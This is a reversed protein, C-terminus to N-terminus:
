FVVKHRNLSITDAKSTYIYYDELRNLAKPGCSKVIGFKFNNLKNPFHEPHKNFIHHSLASSDFKFNEIKFCGRHGNFRIHAPNVTQGFYFEIPISCHICIALYICNDTKCDLSFDLKVIFDNINVCKDLTLINCTLCGRARCKQDSGLVSTIASFASKAFLLSATNPNRRESIVIRKNGILLQLLDQKSSLFNKLLKAMHPDHNIVFTLIDSDQSQEMSNRHEALITDRDLALARTKCEQLETESYGSHLFKNEMYEICRRKEADSSCIVVARRFQSFPIGKFVHASHDSRRNLYRDSDTPKIYVATEVKDDSLTLKVDLFEISQGVSGKLTFNSMGGITNLTKKFLDFQRESGRWIFWLDDLFRRRSEMKNKPAISPHILLKKDLMWKVFINAVAGSEPGGTPVGDKSQFWRGRFHVVSNELCFKTLDLVTRIVEDPYDTSTRLADEVALIALDRNINPYLADVDLTGIKTGPGSFSGAQNLQEIEQIFHTTDQVLEGECYKNAVPQLVHNIFLGLRYAWDTHICTHATM